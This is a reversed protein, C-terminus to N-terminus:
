RHPWRDPIGPSPASRRRLTRHRTSPWPRPVVLDDLAVPLRMPQHDKAERTSLRDPIEKSIGLVLFDRLNPPFRRLRDCDGDVPEHSAPSLQAFAVCWSPWELDLPPEVM